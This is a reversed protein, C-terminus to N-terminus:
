WPRIWSKFNPTACIPKRFYSFPPNYQKEFETIITYMYVIWIRNKQMITYRLGRICFHILCFRIQVFKLPPPPARGTRGGRFGGKNVCTHDCSKSCTMCVTDVYAHMYAHTNEYKHVVCSKCKSYLIPHTDDLFLLNVWRWRSFISSIDNNQSILRVYRQM